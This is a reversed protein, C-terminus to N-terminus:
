FLWFPKYNSHVTYYRFYWTFKSELYPMKHNIFSIQHCLHPHMKNWVQDFNSFHSKPYPYFSRYNPITPTSGLIKHAFFFYSVFNIVLKCLKISLIKNKYETNLMKIHTPDEWTDNDQVKNASCASYFWAHM